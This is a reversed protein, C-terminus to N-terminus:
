SVEVLEIEFNLNEGALPHNFDLTVTFADQSIIKALFPQGNQQQGQVTKGVVFEFDPPFSKRPIAQVLEDNINGYADSPDLTVSKTEGVSMGHLATDFGAIMQGSGVEFKIPEGRQYSNDFETGDNLTGKYHVSVTNGAEVSM